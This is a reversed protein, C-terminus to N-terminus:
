ANVLSYFGVAITDRRVGQMNASVAMGRDAGVGRSPKTASSAAARPWCNRWWRRLRDGPPVPRSVAHLRLSLPFRFYLWVAHSIIEAPFRYGAYSPCAPTTM